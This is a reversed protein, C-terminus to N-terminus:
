QSLAQPSSTAPYNLSQPSGKQFKAWSLERYIRNQGAISLKGTTGDYRDYEYAALRQLHPIIQYADIGLAAFRPLKSQSSTLQLDLSDRLLEFSPDSSLLWPIDCYTIGNIDQDASTNENGTFVHSTAYVPLDSAYHYSLQPRLQRAQQPSAAVFIFDADQRRRPEFEVEQKIISQINRRRQESQNLQLLNKIPVSYDASKPEYREYQLVTGGLEYFRNTFTELLRTGWAGEPVLVLAEQHNDLSAREAVQRAEDEPLLGFQFLKQPGVLADNAYNLSLTPVSIQGQSALISVAEKQLPGIIFDAGESIARRHYSVAATADDGTDYLVVEPPPNFTEDFERASTIGAYIAQAVNRYRGTMPLLLAIKNPAIRFSAWDQALSDVIHNPVKHNPFRTRWQQLKNELAPLNEHPQKQIAALNLWAALEPSKNSTTWAQLEEPNSNLLSQWILQNNTKLQEPKKLLPNLAVRTAISEQTQGVANLAKARVALVHPKYKESLDIIKLPATDLALQPQGNILALETTAIRKRVYLDQTLTSEDIASLYQQAHQKTEPHLVAEAARIQLAERQPSSKTEAASWYIAAAEQYKGAEILREARRIQANESDFIEGGPLSLDACSSIACVLSILIVIHTIRQM